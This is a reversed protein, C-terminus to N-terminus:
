NHNNDDNGEDEEDDDLSSEMAKSWEDKLKKENNTGDYHNEDNSNADPVENKRGDKTITNNSTYVIDGNALLSLEQLLFDELAMKIHNTTASVGFEYMSLLARDYASRVIYFTDDVLSSIQMSEDSYDLESVMIANKM